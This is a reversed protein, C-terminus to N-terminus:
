NKEFIKLVMDFLNILIFLTIPFKPFMDRLFRFVLKLDYFSVKFDSIGRGM